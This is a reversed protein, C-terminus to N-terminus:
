KSVKRQIFNKYALQLEISTLWEIETRADFPPNPTISKLFSNMAQCLNHLQDREKRNYELAVLLSGHTEKLSKLDKELSCAFDYYVDISQEPYEYIFNPGGNYDSVKQPNFIADTKPTDSMILNTPM